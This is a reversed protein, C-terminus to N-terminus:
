HSGGLCPLSVALPTNENLQKWVKEFWAGWASVLNIMPGMKYCKVKLM